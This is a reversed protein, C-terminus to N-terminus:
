RDFQAKIKGEPQSQVDTDEKPSDEPISTRSSCQGASQGGEPQCLLPEEVKKELALNELANATADAHVLQDPM